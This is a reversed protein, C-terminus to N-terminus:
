LHAGKELRKCERFTLMGVDVMRQFVVKSPRSKEGRRNEPGEDVLPWVPYGHWTESPRAYPFEAVQEGWTGLDPVNGTEDRPRIGYMRGQEDALENLDAAEFVSFEEQRSLSPLWQAADPGGRGHHKDYFQYFYGSRRTPVQHIPGSSEGVSM